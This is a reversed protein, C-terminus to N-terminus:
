YRLLRRVNPRNAAVWRAESDITLRIDRDTLGSTDREAEFLEVLLGLTAQSNSLPDLNVAFSDGSRTNVRFDAVGQKIQVGNGRNLDTLRTTSSIPMRSGLRSLEVGLQFATGFNATLDITSSIDISPAIQNVPGLDFDFQQDLQALRISEDTRIDISLTGPQGNQAPEYRFANVIGPLLRGFEQITSFNAVRGTDDGTDVLPEVVLSQFAEGVALVKDLTTSATLPLIRGLSATTVAGTLQQALVGLGGM